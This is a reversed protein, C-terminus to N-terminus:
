RLALFLWRASGDKEIEKFAAVVVDKTIKGQAAMDRLAGVNVGLQDAIPRLVASM